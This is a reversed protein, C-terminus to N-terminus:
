PLQTCGTTRHPIRESWERSRLQRLWETSNQLDDRGRWMGIFPEGEWDPAPPRSSPPRQHRQRLFAIFDVVERQADPPLTSFEKLVKEHM